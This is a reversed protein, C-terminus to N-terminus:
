IRRAVTRGAFAVFATTGALLCGLGFCLGAATGAALVRPPLPPLPLNRGAISVVSILSSGLAFMTEANEVAPMSLPASTHIGPPPIAELPGASRLAPLTILMLLFCALKLARRARKPRPAPPPDNPLNAMVAEVFDEGVTLPDELNQELMEALRHERALLIKCATCGSVHRASRMAEDPTAEGEAVRGLLSRVTDCTAM